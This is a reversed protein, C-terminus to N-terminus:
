TGFTLPVIAAKEKRYLTPARRRDGCSRFYAALTTLVRAQYEPASQGETPGASTDDLLPSMRFLEAAAIKASKAARERRKVAGADWEFKPEVVM